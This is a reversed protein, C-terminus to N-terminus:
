GSDSALLDSFGRSPCRLKDPIPFIYKWGDNKDREFAYCSLWVLKVNSLFRSKPEVFQTWLGSWLELQDVRHDELHGARCHSRSSKSYVRMLITSRGLERGRM